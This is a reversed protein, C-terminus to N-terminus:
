VTVPAAPNAKVNTESMRLFTALAGCADAAYLVLPIRNLGGSKSKPPFAEKNKWQANLM